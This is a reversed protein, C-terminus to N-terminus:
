RWAAKAGEVYAAYAKRLAALDADKHIWVRYSLRLPKGAPFTKSTVGPYGVCLIGYHRTLWTPPFDPHTPPVMLAAGSPTAAGNFGRALDAWALRTDPLDEKTAGDPVTIACTDGPPVNFRMTMGGYSKGEAGRLSIPHDVPIWTLDLDLARAQDTARYVRLWVREIMVKKEGVFWGNEVALVAAVPGTQRAIWRVFRNDIDAGTWVNYEHGAIEVHPWTWFIGHHHYHDLPFDDTLVEGDLGHM